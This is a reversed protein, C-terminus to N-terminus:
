PVPRASNCLRGTTHALEAAPVAGADPVGAAAVLKHVALVGGILHVATLSAGERGEPGPEERGKRQAGLAAEAKEWGM